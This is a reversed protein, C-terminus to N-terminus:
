KDDDNPALLAGFCGLLVGLAALLLLLSLLAFLLLGFYLQLVHLHSSLLLSGPFSPKVFLNM